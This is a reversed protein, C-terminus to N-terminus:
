RHKLEFLVPVKVWMEVRKGDINGPEFLWEKVVKVASRDLVAHGSSKLVLLDDVRGQPNVLVKLLVVGEYGRRRAIRPYPPKPNKAYAPFASVVTPASPAAEKEGPPGKERQIDHQSESKVGEASVSAEPSDIGKTIPQVLRSAAKESKKPPSKVTRKNKKQRAKKLTAPIPKKRHAPKQIPTRAEKPLTEPKLIEKETELLEKERIRERTLPTKEEVVPAPSIATKEPKRLRPRKEERSAAVTKTKVPQHERAVLTFALSKSRPNVAKRKFFYGGFGFLLGHILLALM